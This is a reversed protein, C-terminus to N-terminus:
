VSECFLWVVAGLPLSSYWKCNERWRCTRFSKTVGEYTMTPTWLLVTQACFPYVRLFDDDRDDLMWPILHSNVRESRLRGFTEELTTMV